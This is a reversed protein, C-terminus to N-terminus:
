FFFYYSKSKYIINIKNCSTAYSSFVISFEGYRMM